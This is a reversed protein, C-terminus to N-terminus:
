QETSLQWGYKCQETNVKTHDLNGATKGHKQSQQQKWGINKYAQPLSLLYPLPHKFLSISNAFASPSLNYLAKVMNNMESKLIHPRNDQNEHPAENQQQWM